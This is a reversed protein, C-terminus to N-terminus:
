FYQRLGLVLHFNSISVNKNCRPNNNSICHPVPFTLCIPFSIMSLLTKDIYPLDKSVRYMNKVMYKLIYNYVNNYISKTVHCCTACSIWPSGKVSYLEPFSCHLALPGCNLSYQGLNWATADELTPSRRILHTILLSPTQYMSQEELSKWPRKGVLYRSAKHRM